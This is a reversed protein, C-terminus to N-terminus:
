SHSLWSLLDDYQFTYSLFNRIKDANIIKNAVSLDNNSNTNVVEVFEPKALGLELAAQEYYKRKAVYTHSSGNYISSHAPANILGFLLGVADHQHILNTTADPDSLLRGSKLFKGPHRDPGVLGSLRLIITEGSFKLAAEEAQHIIATKESSLNLACDEKIDGDLGNYVATSSIMILQKVDGSQALQVIHKIKDAYDKRGQRIGPPIAIIVCSQKFLSLTFDTISPSSDSLSFCEVQAGLQSLQEVKDQHQTSVVVSYHQSILKETLAKGLWGCGIIGVSTSM